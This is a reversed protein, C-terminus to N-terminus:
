NEQVLLHWGIWADDLGWLNYAGSNIRGFRHMFILDLTGAGRTEVSHGTIIRTGKFTSTAKETAESSDDLLDMLDDQAFILFPLLFLYLFVISKNLKKM